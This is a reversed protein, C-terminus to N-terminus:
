ALHSEDRTPLVAHLQDVHGVRALRKVEARHARALRLRAHHAIPNEVHTHPPGLFEDDAVHAVRALRGDDGLRLHVPVAVPEGHPAVVAERGGPVMRPGHAMAVLAIGRVAAAVAQLDEVHGLGVLGLEDRADLRRAAIAQRVVEPVRGDGAVVRVEAVRVVAQEDDVDGIQGLQREGSVPLQLIHVLPLRAPRHAAERHAM